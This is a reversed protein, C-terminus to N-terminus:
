ALSVPSVEDLSPVYYYVTLGRGMPQEGPNCGQPMKVIGGTLGSIRNLTSVINSRAVPKGMNIEYETVHANAEAAHFKWKPFLGQYFSQLLWTLSVLPVPLYHYRVKLEESNGTAPIEIWMPDGETCTKAM